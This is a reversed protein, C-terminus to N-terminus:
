EVTSVLVSLFLAVTDPFVFVLPITVEVSDDGTKVSINEVSPFWAFADSFYVGPGVEVSIDEAAPKCSLVSPPFALADSLVVRLALLELEVIDKVSSCWVLADDFVVVADVDVAVPDAEMEPDLVSPRMVLADAVAVEGPVTVEVSATDFVMSFDVVSVAICVSIESFVEPGVREVAVTDAITATDLVSPLLILVDAFVLGSTEVEVSAVDLEISSDEVSPFWPLTDSVTEEPVVKGVSLDGETKSDM